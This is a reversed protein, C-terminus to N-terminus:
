GHNGFNRLGSTRQPQSGPSTPPTGGNGGSVPQLRQGNSAASANAGRSPAQRAAPGSANGADAGTPQGSPHRAGSQRPVAQSSGRQNVNAPDALTNQERGHEAVSNVGAPRPTARKLNEQVTLEQARSHMAQLTEAIALAQFPTYIISIKKDGASFNVNIVRQDRKENHPGQSVTLRKIANGNKSDAYQSKSPDAFQTFNPGMHAGTGLAYVRFAVSFAMLDFAEMKFTIAEALVYNAGRRPSGSVYFFYPLKYQKDRVQRVLSVKLLSTSPFGVDQILDTSLSSGYPGDSQNAGM